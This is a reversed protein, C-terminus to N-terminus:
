RAETGLSFNEVRKFRVLTRLITALKRMQDRRHFRMLENSVPREIRRLAAWSYGALLALGGTVYPRKAMRYAVRFAQWLPSGGLYYDKEGYSFLAALPGRQATGM